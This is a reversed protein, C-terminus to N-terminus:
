DDHSICITGLKRPVLALIRIREMYKTGLREFLWVLEGSTTVQRIMRQTLTADHETILM